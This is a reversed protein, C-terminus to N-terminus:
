YAGKVPQPAPKTSKPPKGVPSSDGPQTPSTSTNDTLTSGGTGTDPVVINPWVPLVTVKEDWSLGPGVLKWVEGSATILEGDLRVSITVQANIIYWFNAPDTGYDGPERKFVTKSLGRSRLLEWQKKSKAELFGGVPELDANIVLDEVDTSALYQSLSGQFRGSSGTYKTMNESTRYVKYSGKVLVATNTGSELLDTIATDNGKASPFSTGLRAQQASAIIENATKGEDTYFKDVVKFWSIDVKKCAAAFADVIEKKRAAAEAKEELQAQERQALVDTFFTKRKAFGIYKAEMTVTVSCQMPVLTSSFKTFAVTTNTVMGEVIYLSSFVVRIPVPLLFASNGMNIELFGQVGGLAKEGQTKADEADSANAEAIVTDELVGQMYELQSKNLGQGVVGFFASLDHLVGVQGPSNDRWLDSNVDNPNSVVANSANNVEMSRDFFLTFSFNVAGPIPQAYQAPDQQLFNLMSTNASVSQQLTTPNFQFQCKRIGVATGSNSTIMSRMYGKKLTLNRPGKADAVRIQNNPYVFLQNDAKTPVYQNSGDIKKSSGPEGTNGLNFFQDNHYGTGTM